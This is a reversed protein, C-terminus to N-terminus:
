ASVRTASKEIEELPSVPFEKVKQFVLDGRYDGLTLAEHFLETIDQKFKQPLVIHSRVMLDFQKERVLGDFQFPGMKSMDVEVIFRTGSKEDKADKQDKRRDRRYFLNIQRITGDDLIPIFCCRWDIGPREQALTSVQALEQRIKRASEDRTTSGSRAAVLAGLLADADNARIAQMAAVLGAALRPGAQPLRALAALTDANTVGQRMLAIAEALSPWGRAISLLLQPLSLSGSPLAAAPAPLIPEIAVKLEAGVPLSVHGQLIIAGLPSHLVANGSPTYGIIRGAMVHQAGSAPASMALAQGPASAMAILRLRVESGTTLPIPLKAGQALNQALGQPNSPSSSLLTGRVHSALPPAAGGPPPPSSFFLAEIKARVDTQLASVLAGPLTSAQQVQAPVPPAGPQHSAPTTPGPAAGATAPLPTGSSAPLPLRTGLQASALQPQASPPGPLLSRILQALTDPATQVITGHLVSGAIAVPAPAPTTSTSPPPAQTQGTGPSAPPPVAGTRGGQSTTGSTPQSDVALVLVQLRDGTARLELTVQSGTPINAPTSLKVTGKDTVVVLLGDPDRGQVLGKVITGNDLQALQRPPDPVIATVSPAQGASPLRPPLNISFESM